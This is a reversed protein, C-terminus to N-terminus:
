EYATSNLLGKRVSDDRRITTPGALQFIPTKVGPLGLIRDLQVEATSDFTYTAGKM